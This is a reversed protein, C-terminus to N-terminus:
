CCGPLVPLALGETHSVRRLNYLDFARSILLVLAEVSLVHQDDDNTLYGGLAATDPFGIAEGTTIAAGDM